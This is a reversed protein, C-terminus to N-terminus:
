GFGHPMGCCGGMGTRQKKMQIQEDIGELDYGKDFLEKKQPDTLIEYAEGIRKFMEEANKKGVDDLHGKKDPHWEAARERYAKKIELASAVSPCGLLDYFNTRKHKRLLFKAEQLKDHTAQDRHWAFLSELEKVGDEHRDLAQLAQARYLYPQVLEHNRYTCNGVDKIVARWDKLRVNCKARECFLGGALVSSDQCQEIMVDLVEKCKEFERSDFAEKLEVRKTTLLRLRKYLARASQNDPDFSLAEKLIRQGQELPETWSPSEVPNSNNRFLAEARLTFADICQRNGRLIHQTANLVRPYNKLELYCRAM